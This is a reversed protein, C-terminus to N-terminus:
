EPIRGAHDFRMTDPPTKLTYWTSGSPVALRKRCETVISKERLPLTIDVPRHDFSTLDREITPRLTWNPNCQGRYLYKGANQCM